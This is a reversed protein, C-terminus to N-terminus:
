FIMIICIINNNNGHSLCDVLSKVHIIMEKLGGLLERFNFANLGNYLHLGSIRFSQTIQGHNWLWRDASSSELCLVSSEFTVQRLGLGVVLPQFNLDWLTLWTFPWFNSSLCMPEAHSISYSTATIAPFCLMYGTSLPCSSGLDLCNPSHSLTPKTHGSVERKEFSICLKIQNKLAPM